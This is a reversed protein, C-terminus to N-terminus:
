LTALFTFGTIAIMSVLGGYFWISDSPHLTEDDELPFFFNNIKNM